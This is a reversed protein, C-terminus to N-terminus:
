HIPLNPFVRPTLVNLIGNRSCNILTVSEAKPFIVSDPIYHSGLKYMCLNPTSEIHKVFDQSVKKGFSILKNSLM